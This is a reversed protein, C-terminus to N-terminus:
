LDISIGPPLAALYLDLAERGLRLALPFREEQTGQFHKSQEFALDRPPFMAM